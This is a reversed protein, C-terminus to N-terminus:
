WDSMEELMILRLDIFFQLIETIEQATRPSFINTLEDLTAGENTELYLWIARMEKTLYIEQGTGPQAIKIYSEGPQYFHTTVYIRYNTIDELTQTKM